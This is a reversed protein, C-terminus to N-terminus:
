CVQALECFLNEPADIAREPVVLEAPVVASVVRDERGDDGARYRRLLGRAPIRAPRAGCRLADPGGRARGAPRTPGPRGPSLRRRPTTRRFAPGACSSRM